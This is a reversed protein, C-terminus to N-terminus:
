KVIDRMQEESVGMAKLRRYALYRTGFVAGVAGGLAILDLGIGLRETPILSHPIHNLCKVAASGLENAERESVMWIDGYRQALMASTLTILGGIANAASDVRGGRRKPAVPIERIPPAETENGENNGPSTRAHFRRNPGSDNGASGDSEPNLDIAVGGSNPEGDPTGVPETDGVAGIGDGSLTDRTSDAM